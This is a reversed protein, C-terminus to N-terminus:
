LGLVFENFKAILGMSPRPLDVPPASPAGSRGSARAPAAPAGQISARICARHDDALPKVGMILRPSVQRGDLAQARQADFRSQFQVHVWNAAGVAFSGCSSINGCKQLEALVAEKDEPPFGFATVWRAWYAESLVAAEGVAVAGADGGAGARGAAASPTRAAADARTAPAPSDGKLRDRLTMFPPARFATASGGRAETGGAAGPTGAGKRPPPTRAALDRARDRAASALASAPSAM